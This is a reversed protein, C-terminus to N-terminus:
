PWPLARGLLEDRGPIHELHNQGLTEISGEGQRGKGKIAGQPARIGRREQKMEVEALEGEDAGRGLDQHAHAVALDGDPREGARARRPAM